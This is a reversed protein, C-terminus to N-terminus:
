DKRRKKIVWEEEEKKKQFIIDVHRYAKMSEKFKKLEKSM